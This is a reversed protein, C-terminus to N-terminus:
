WTNFHNQLTHKKFFKWIEEFANIDMNAPYEVGPISHVGNNIRYFVIDGRGSYSPYEFLTVTSNDYSNIDPLETVAPNDSAENNDIWYSLITNWSVSYNDGEIKVTQDATGHMYCLPMPKRMDYSAFVANDMLGSIPAIAAIRDQLKEAVTYTMYGGNSMGSVYIRNLDILGQKELSDMISTIFAVDNWPQTNHADWHTINNSLGTTLVGQPQLFIFKEREALKCFYSDIMEPWVVGAAGHLFIVLPLRINESGSPIYIGYERAKGNFQIKNHSIQAGTSLTKINIIQKNTSGSKDFAIVAISYFKSPTLNIFSYNLKYDENDAILSDNIFFRYYVRDYDPDISQSFSITISRDTIKEPTVTFEGPAKNLQHQIPNNDESKSCSLNLLVSFLLPLCYKCNLM